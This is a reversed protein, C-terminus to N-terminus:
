RFIWRHSITWSVYIKEMRNRGMRKCNDDRINYGPSPHIGWDMWITQDMLYAFYKGTSPIM